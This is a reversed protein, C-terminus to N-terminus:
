SLFIACCYALPYQDCCSILLFAAFNSSFFCTYKKGIAILAFHLTFVIPSIQFRPTSIYHGPTVINSTLLVPDLSQTQSLYM